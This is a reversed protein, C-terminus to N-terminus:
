SSAEQAGSESSHSAQGRPACAPCADSRAGAAKRPWANWLSAAVLLVIGGYMAADSAFVFKGVLVIGSAALGAVFPGHGRRTGARYALAAVAILLFVATMPLLYATKFLFGFGVASLLGAYAPWCAPCAGVPLLAAGIGPL